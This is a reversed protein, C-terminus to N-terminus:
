RLTSPGTLQSETVPSMETFLAVGLDLLVITGDALYGINEPKIDRHVFKGDNWMAQVAALLSRALIFAEDGNLPGSALRARLTGGAMLPETYWTRVGGGVTRQEPGSLLSVVHPCSTTEMGALERRFREAAIEVEDDAASSEAITIKLAVVDSGSEVRYAVKQQGVGLRPTTVVFEPFAATVDADSFPVAPM